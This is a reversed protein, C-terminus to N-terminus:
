SFVIQSGHSPSLLDVFVFYFFMTFLSVQNAIMDEEEVTIAEDSIMHDMLYAPKMIEELKHRSTLLCARAREDLAM